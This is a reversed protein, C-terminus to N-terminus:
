WAFQYNSEINTGLNQAMFNKPEENDLDWADVYQLKVKSFDIPDDYSDILLDIAKLVTPKYTSEWEYGSEVENVALMGFGHQIVPWTFEGKWYQHMPGGFIKLPMGDPLLKKHVPYDHKLKEALKGQAL